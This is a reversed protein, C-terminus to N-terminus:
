LEPLGLSDGSGVKASEPPAKLGLVLAGEESRAYAVIRENLDPLSTLIQDIVDERLELSEVGDFASLFLVIDPPLDKKLISWVSETGPECEDWRLWDGVVGSADRAKFTGDNDVRDVIYTRGLVYSHSNNNRVVRIRYGSPVPNM